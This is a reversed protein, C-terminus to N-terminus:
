GTFVAGTFFGELLAALFVRRVCSFRNPFAERLLKEGGDSGETSMKPDGQLM